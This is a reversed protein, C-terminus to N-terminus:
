FFAVFDIHDRRRTAVRTFRHLVHLRGTLGFKGLSGLSRPRVTSRTARAWAGLQEVRRLGGCRYTITRKNAKMMNSCPAWM